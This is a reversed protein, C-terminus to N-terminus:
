APAPHDPDHAFAPTIRSLDAALGHLWADTDFLVPLAAPPTSRGSTHGPPQPPGPDPPPPPPPATARTPGVGLQEGATRFRHALRDARRTLWARAEPGPAAGEPLEAPGLLRRAGRLAHHGAILAAQWDMGSATAPQPESRYQVYTSEAMILVHQLGKDVPGPDRHGAAVAATTTAVTRGIAHLLLGVDRRLEDRAGRPWALLGIGLGILSGVLVDLVRAEALRWGAPALQAFVLSVVVTFMGQAWGLGLVPGFTFTALMVAPLAAAYVETRHGVTVLLAAAVAAGLLTGTLARRIGNRTEVATTRTLTLAALLAWFGHPLGALGAVARAAALGVSLRVANQFYVSRPSLHASLRRWWLRVAPQHSYWFPGDPAGTPAHRGQVAVDVARLLFLAADAAELLDAQRSMAAALGAGSAPLGGIRAARGARFHKMARELDQPRAPPGGRLAAAAGDSAAG